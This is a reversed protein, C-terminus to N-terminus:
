RVQEVGITADEGNVKQSKLFANPSPSELVHLTLTEHTIYDCHRDFADHVIPTSELSLSIRDSVNFDAEKRIQQIKNVLERALGELILEHTLETSLAVFKYADAEVAYGERNESQVDVEARDLTYSVGEAQIELEGNGDLEGKLTLADAASFAKAIAQVNRGYKPGLLKFNPKVTYSAFEDIGEHYSIHKVNLEDLVLASLHNVAYQQKESIGGIAISRLPQRTKIGSQNRAARGLGILDRALSMDDELSADVLVEDVTPYDSLHVSEPADPDVSCVLNQFISETVFPIFPALLRSTTVMVQYLTQYAAEKDTDAESKWFRRRSRRLYWNSLDDLFDEVVRCAGDPSYEELRETVSRVTSQLRSLIWRDLLNESKQPTEKWLNAGPKWGDLNAYTVLFSYVNWFPILVQRRVEDSHKYGFLLNQEPKAASYMWRMVDVGMAEAADDFWIANGWSKHMARGDEAFLTAYSFNHKFPSRREMVTSMAILSYFWNRFQGPFSESILDAPFWQHWYDRDTRYQMTSFSVIGADLWPNGVDLIRSVAAGCSPCAIKVADIWPRHPTHGEFEEWGEVAIEKLEELSGVVHFHSCEDCEYIPLALGWYRKKSIMWDHMNRLWDLERALGFSPYWKTENLVVEMMQYRLNQEKEAETVQEYPKDLQEGMSIFWEDVLRFVLEEECRWCVPYRHTYDELRYVIGKQKLNEFIDEAVTHVQRGTLWDFGDLYIGEAGLPAIIPLDQEKSLEFDEAGCGPATHVIGTGEAEGVEDWLIVRHGDAAGSTQQAPLEDFPGDYTWGELEGGSKEALIQHDGRIANELAGKSLWVRHEDQEVLVYTLEPHVAAAVNSTLTWPTTTWVLLSESPRNRLPFRLFISTHTLERYGDTVIEHQSIGTDCRSCWPMVDTGKYIWGRDFCKKLMTWITYNNENSFTFYSGGLEPLGLRGVLQEVTDTVPGNPGEVTLMQSPDQAMKTELERLLDPDNWDMWYGLRISQETQTAAHRLVQRKCANVFEDLGYAEIDKKAKFGMDREVNVEIWLGQCDFGNQYRTQHGQMAKFRQFLDKYTRGWAHHVGMPNNATIPGDIFSWRPADQRLAKLKHFIDSDRWFGLIQHEQAVFDVTNPVDKFM